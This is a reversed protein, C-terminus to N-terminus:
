IIIIHLFCRSKVINYAQISLLPSLFQRLIYTLSVILGFDNRFVSNQLYESEMGEFIHLNDKSLIATRPKNILHDSAGGDDLANATKHSITILNQQQLLSVKSLISNLCAQTINCGDRTNLIFLAANRQM